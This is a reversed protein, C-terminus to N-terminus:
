KAFSTDKLSDMSYNRKNRYIFGTFVIMSEKRKKKKTDSSHEPTILNPISYECKFMEENLNGYM